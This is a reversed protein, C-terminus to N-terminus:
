SKTKTRYEATLVKEISNVAANCLVCSAKFISGLNKSVVLHFIDKKYSTNGVM